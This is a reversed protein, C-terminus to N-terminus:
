VSAFFDCIVRSEVPCTIFCYPCQNSPAQQRSVFCVVITKSNNLAVLNKYAATPRRDTKQAWPVAEDSSGPVQQHHGPVTPQLHLRLVASNKHANALALPGEWKRLGGGGKLKSAGGGEKSAGGPTPTHVWGGSSTDDFRGM